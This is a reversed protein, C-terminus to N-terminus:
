TREAGRCRLRSEIFTLWQPLTRHLSAESLTINQLRNNAFYKVVKSTNFAQPSVMKIYEKIMDRFIENVRPGTSIVKKYFVFLEVINLKKLLSTSIKFSTGDAINVYARWGSILASVSVTTIKDDFMHYFEHIDRYDSRFEEVINMLKRNDNTGKLHLEKKKM